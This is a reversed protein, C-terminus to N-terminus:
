ASAREAADAQAKFGLVTGLWKGHRAIDRAAEALRREADRLADGALGVAIERQEADWRADWTGLRTPDEAGSKGRETPESM